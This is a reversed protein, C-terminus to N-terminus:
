NFPLLATQKWNLTIAISNISFLTCPNLCIVCFDWLNGSTYCSSLPRWSGIIYGLLWRVTGSTIDRGVTSWRTQSSIRMATLHHAFHKGWKLLHCVKATLCRKSHGSPHIEDSCFCGSHLMDTLTLSPSIVPLRQQRWPLLNPKKTLEGEFKNGFDMFFDWVLWSCSHLIKSCLM